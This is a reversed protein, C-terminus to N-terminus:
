LATKTSTNQKTSRRRRRRRRQSRQRKVRRVFRIYEYDMRPGSVLVVNDTNRRNMPAPCSQCLWMSVTIPKMLVWVGSRAAAELRGEWSAQM